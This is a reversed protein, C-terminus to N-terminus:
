SPVALATPSLRWHISKLGMHSVEPGQEVGLAKGRREEHAM